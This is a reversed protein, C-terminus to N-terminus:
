SSNLSRLRMTEATSRRDSAFIQHSTPPIINSDQGGTIRSNHCLASYGLRSVSLLARTSAISGHRAEVGEIFETRFDCSSEDLERLYLAAEIEANMLNCAFLEFRRSGDRVDGTRM